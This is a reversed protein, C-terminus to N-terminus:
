HENLCLARGYVQHSVMINSKVGRRSCNSLQGLWSQGGGRVCVCQMMTQRARRRGTNAGVITKTIKKTTPEDEQSPM